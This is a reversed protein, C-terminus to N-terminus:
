PQTVGALEPLLKREQPAGPVHLLELGLVPGPGLAAGRQRREDPRGRQRPRRHAGPGAAHRVAPGPLGDARRRVPIGSDPHLGPSAPLRMAQRDSTTLAAGNRLAGFVQGAFLGAGQSTTAGSYAAVAGYWGGLTSPLRGGNQARAYGALVAAAGRINEADNTKLTSTPVHLLRAAEDLTYHTRPLSTRRPPQGAKGAASATTFTQTTLNMLGYGGDASPASGRTEWRSESYGIALLLSDPVGSERAAARYAAM